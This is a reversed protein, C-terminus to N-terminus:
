FHIEGLNFRGFYKGFYKQAHSRAQASTRTGIYDEVKRWNKGFLSLAEM